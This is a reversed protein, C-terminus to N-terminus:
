ILASGGLSIQRNSLMTGYPCKFTARYSTRPFPSGVGGDRLFSLLNPPKQVELSKGLCCDITGAPVTRKFRVEGPVEYRAVQLNGVPGAGNKAENGLV